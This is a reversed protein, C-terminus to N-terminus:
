GAFIKDLAVTEGKGTLAALPIQAGPRYVHPDRDPEFVTIIKLEPDVEWFQICGNRFCLDRLRNLEMATNSPSLIEILLEPPPAPYDKRNEIRTWKELPVAGVGARHGEGAFGYGFEVRVFYRDALFAALLDKIREQLHMHYPSPLPAEMVEGDCLELDVGPRDPLIMFEELSLKATQVAV